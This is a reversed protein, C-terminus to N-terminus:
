QRLYATILFSLNDSKEAFAYPATSPTLRYAVAFGWDVAGWRILGDIGAGVEAIGRSPAMVEIEDHWRLGEDDQEWLQGWEGGVMVFPRPAMGISIANLYFKFLPESFGFKLTALAFANATFENPMAVSLARELALPSSWIGGIDFHRSYPLDASTVGAQAFTKLSFLKAVKFTHRYQGLLRAYLPYDAHVGFIDADATGVLLEASLGNTHSATFRGELYRHLPFLAREDADVPYYLSYQDFLRRERALRVEAGLTLKGNPSFGAGAYLRDTESFRRIMFAYSSTFSTLDYGDLDRSADQTLDHFFGLYAHPKRKHSGLLDAQLGWKVRQDAYGYGVYGDLSLTKLSSQPDFNIDYRLGLGWRSKEYLNYSWLRDVNFYLANRSQASNIRTYQGIASLPLMILLTTLLTSKKM